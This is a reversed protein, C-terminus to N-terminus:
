LTRQFFDVISQILRSDRVLMITGHGAQDLVLSERNVTGKQKPNTLERVTRWAYADERSAVLLMPRTFRRAVQEIRVGRYDLTPSLLAVARIAPDDAAAVLALNAGLSAGAIGIRDRAVDARSGLFQRAAAVDKVMAAPTAGEETAAVTSEGHGRLDFTLAAIGETALRSAVPDWDRRNRVLMHVLIVARSPKPNSDYYTGSLLVGDTTRFTVRQAHAQARVMVPLLLASAALLALGTRKV